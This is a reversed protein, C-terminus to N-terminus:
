YSLRLPIFGAKKILKQGEDTLLFKTYTEGVQEDEQGNQNIVIFLRRSLPYDGNFFADFNIQNQSPSCTESPKWENKYLSVLKNSSYRSLSLAKVECHHIVETASTIYIGGPNNVDSIKKFAQKNDDVFVVRDGFKEMGLVNYQFFDTTGSQISRAYPIIELDTGGLQSWNTIKGRYIDKLQKITLGTINLNPNVAIAIGDIAIPIQQLLIGRQFATEYEKDKLPRSSQVFSIQGDLLMKIGSGSGQPLTPHQTYILKFQPHEKKIKNDIQERIPTWTTSGGYQWIGHPFAEISKITSNQPTMAQSLSPIMMQTGLGLAFSLISAFIILQINQWTKSPTQRSNTSLQQWTIPTVSSRLCLTPLWVAGPYRSKFPELRKKAKQVSAFLSQNRTFESFFYQLFEIAVEDPIPERMVISQPLNLEALQNALGLGDCSNFIALQLGKDIAEKLSNKFAEISLSETENVEIWGIKGDAQSSSHGTFIFIHYGRDSWLEQCLDKLTPHFLCTVEAGKEELEKIVELDAQTNIGDSRGVVVLIGIKKRKPYHFEKSIPLDQTKSLSFAVETNPYYKELLDWEQWPLRRLNIEQVDLIFQVEKEEERDFQNALSILGERITQWSLDSSNLWKNLHTKVTQTYESNSGITVSKPTIRFISQTILSRVDELQRYATQWQSFAVQLEEPLSALFGEIELKKRDCTLTVLYGQESTQRLKLRVVHM